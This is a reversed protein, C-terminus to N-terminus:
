KDNENGCNSQERNRAAVVPSSSPGVDAAGAAVAGAAAGVVAGTATGVAACASGAGAMILSETVTTMDPPKDGRVLRSVVILPRRKVTM